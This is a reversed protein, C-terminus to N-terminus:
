NIFSFLSKFNETSFFCYKFNLAKNVNFSTV